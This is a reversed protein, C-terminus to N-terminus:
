HSNEDKLADSIIKEYDEVSNGKIENGNVWIRQIKGKLKDYILNSVIGLAINGTLSLSFDVIEKIDNYSLGNQQSIEVLEITAGEAIQTSLGIHVNENLFLNELISEKNNKDIM